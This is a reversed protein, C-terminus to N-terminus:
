RANMLQNKVVASFRCPVYTINLKAYSLFITLHKYEHVCCILTVFSTTHLRFHYICLSANHLINHIVQTDLLLSSVQVSTIGFSLTKRLLNSIVTLAIGM